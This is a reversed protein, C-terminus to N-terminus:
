SRAECAAVVIASQPMQSLSVSDLPVEYFQQHGRTTIRSSGCETGLPVRGVARGLVTGRGPHWATEYAVINVVTFAPPKPPALIIKQVQGTPDSVLGTKDVTRAVFCWTGYALGTVTYTVAPAPVDTTSALASGCAGWNLRTAAIDAIALPSNDVRQTPHTWTLEANAALLPGSFSLVLLALLFLRFHPSLRQM